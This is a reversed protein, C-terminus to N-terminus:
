RRTALCDATPSPSSSCATWPQPAGPSPTREPSGPRAAPSTSRWCNRASVTRRGHGGRGDRRDGAVGSRTGRQPHRAPVAGPRRPRRRRHTRRDGPFGGAARDGPRARASTDPADRQVSTDGGDRGRRDGGADARLDGRYSGGGRGCGRRRDQHHGGARRGARAGLHGDSDDWRGVFSCRRDRRPGPRADIVARARWVARHVVVPRGSSDGRDPRRAGPPGVRRGPPDVRGPRGHGPVRRAHHHRAAPATGGSDVHRGPEGHSFSAGGGGHVHTDVFGPVVTVAGLDADPHRPAAGSGIAHVTGDTVEIWGPRLLERGTLVTDASLLM